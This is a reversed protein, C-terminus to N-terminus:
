ASIYLTGLGFICLLAIKNALPIQLGKVMPLPLILIALDTAMDIVGVAAFAINEKGCHGGPTSPDWNMAIPQCILLGILCTMIAWCVCFGMIIYAALRFSPLFFIRALMQCISCKVLGVGAAFWFQTMLTLKIFSNNAVSSPLNLFAKPSYSM